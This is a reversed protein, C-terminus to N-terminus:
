GLAERALQEKYYEPFGRVIGREIQPKAWRYLADKIDQECERITDTQIERIGPGIDRPSGEIKGRERLHQIAKNWRALTRHTAILDELVDLRGPNSKKWERAHVEKFAESVYKAMLVKKDLGFRDYRAPKIVVGEIKQGGLVSTRDLFGLLQDTSELRGEFIVPVSELSLELAALRKAAWGLYREHGTNVDFVMLHNQPVRDYALTNHKPKQLYEARYTWGPRLNAALAKVTDVARQFMKEPADPEMVKGKSRIHLLDDEDVGFSFQSGDIKEEVIVDGNFIDQVARHGVAYISPYSHWSDM